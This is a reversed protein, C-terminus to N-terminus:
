MLPKKLGYVICKPLYKPEPYDPNRVNSSIIIPLLLCSSVRSFSLFNQKDASLCVNSVSNAKCDLMLSFLSCCKLARFDFPSYINFSSYRKNEVLQLCLRPPFHNQLGFNVSKLQETPSRWRFFWRFLGVTVGEIDVLLQASVLALDLPLGQDKRGHSKMNETSAYFCPLGQM